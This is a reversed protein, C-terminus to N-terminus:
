GMSVAGALATTVCMSDVRAWRRNDVAHNQDTRTTTTEDLGNFRGVGLFRQAVTTKAAASGVVECM